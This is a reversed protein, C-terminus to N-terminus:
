LTLLKKSRLSLECSINQKLGLWYRCKKMFRTFLNIDSLIDHGPREHREYHQERRNHAKRFLDPNHARRGNSRYQDDGNYYGRSYNGGGM